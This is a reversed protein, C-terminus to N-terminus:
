PEKDGRYISICTDGYCREKVVRFKGYDAALPLRSSHQVVVTSNAGVLGSDLLKELVKPLPSNSYPPDLLILDYEEDLRSLAANVSCCFVRTNEGFGVRDINERILACRKYNQEVFDARQGGQSLAEIGLAGTGAYLDLVRSWSGTISRVMSFIAGRVLDTSPRVVGGRPSKLRRGKSSGSIVRMGCM